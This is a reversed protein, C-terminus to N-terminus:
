SIPQFLKGENIFKTEDFDWIEGLKLEDLLMLRIQQLIAYGMSNKYNDHECSQYDYNNIIGVLYGLQNHDDWYNVVNSMRRNYSLREAYEKDNYRAILSNQNERLLIDFIMSFFDGDSYQLLYIDYLGDCFKEFKAHLEMRKEFSFVEKPENREYWSIQEVSRIARLVTSKREADTKGSKM